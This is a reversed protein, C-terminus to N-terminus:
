NAAAVASCGGLVPSIAAAPLGLGGPLGPAPSLIVPCHLPPKGPYQVTYTMIWYPCGTAPNTPGTYGAPCSPGTIVPKTVSATVVSGSAVPAGVTLAAIVSASAALGRQLFMM